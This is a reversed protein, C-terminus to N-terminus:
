TAGGPQQSICALSCRQGTNTMVKGVDRDWTVRGDIEVAYFFWGVPLDVDAEWTDARRRLPQRWQDGVVNGTLAVSRANHLRFRFRTVLSDKSLSYMGDSHGLLRGASATTQSLKDTDQSDSDDARNRNKICPRACVWRM